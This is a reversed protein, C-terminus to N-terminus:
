DAADPSTAPPEDKRAPSSPRRELRLTPEPAAQAKAAECDSIRGLGVAGSLMTLGAVLTGAGATAARAGPDRSLSSNPNTAAGMGILLSLVSLTIDIFPGALSTTCEFGPRREAVPPPGQVLAVSCGTQM